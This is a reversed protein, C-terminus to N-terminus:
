PRRRRDRLARYVRTFQRAIRKLEGTSRRAEEVLLVQSSWIADLAFAAQKQSEHAQISGQSPPLMRRLAIDWVPGALVPMAVKAASGLQIPLTM